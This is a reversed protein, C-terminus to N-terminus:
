ENSNFRSRFFSLKPDTAFHIDGKCYKQPLCMLEWPYAVVEPMATENIELVVKLTQKQNIAYRRFSLFDARLQQDFLADFLAEGVKQIQEPQLSAPNQIVEQIQQTIKDGRFQGTSGNPTKSESTWKKVNVTHTNPVIIHYSYQNM